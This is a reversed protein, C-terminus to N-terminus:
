DMHKSNTHFGFKKEAQTRMKNYDYVSHIEIGPVAIAGTHVDYRYHNYRMYSNKFVYLGNEDGDSTYSRIIKYKDTLMMRMADRIHDVEILPNTPFLLVTYTWKFNENYKKTFWLVVEQVPIDDDNLCEPRHIVHQGEFQEIDTLLFVDEIDALRLKHLAFNTLNTNGIRLINKGGLRKSGARACVLGVFNEFRREGMASICVGNRGM